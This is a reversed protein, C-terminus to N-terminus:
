DNEHLPSLIKGTEEYYKKKYLIGAEVLKKLEAKDAPTVDELLRHYWRSFQRPNLEYNYRSNFDATMASINNYVKASEPSLYLYAIICLVYDTTQKKTNFFKHVYTYATELPNPLGTITYLGDRNGKPFTCRYKYFEEELKARLRIDIYNRQHAIHFFNCLEEATYTTGLQLNLNDISTENM